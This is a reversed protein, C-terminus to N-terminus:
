EVTLVIKGSNKDEEMYRHAEAADGLAFVRDIVPELRGEEFREWAFNYLDRALEIKYELSRSRLTTGIIQLRKTLVPVLNVGEPKVGGLFALIVLRGDTRLVELNRTFYPAAIFDIVVDVGRNETHEKVADAFDENKYDIAFDAGMARCTEHKPGSATVIIGGAGMERALQTAATGVGSAGAHVLIWEGKKLGAIWNVAQFATMFVEPVAAAEIMSMGKPVPLALDKHIVAYEAYGGGPLLGCVTDGEKWRCAGSGTGAVTGAMELGLLPSAGEPPPYKGMRQQIDARNVATAAIKVLIEKDGPEPNPWEGLQLQEPGGYKNIIIARM